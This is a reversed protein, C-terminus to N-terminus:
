QKEMKAIVSNLANAMSQMASDMASAMQQYPAAFAGALTALLVEKPPTKSLEDVQKDTLIIGDLYGGLVKLLKTKKSIELMAKALEVPQSGYAIGSPGRFIRKMDKKYIQEIAVGAITNKIMQLAINQSRLKRRIQHNQEATINGYSFVIFHNIKKLENSLEQAM